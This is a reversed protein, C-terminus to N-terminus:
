FFESRVTKENITRPKTAQVTLSKGEAPNYKLVEGTNEELIKRLKPSM